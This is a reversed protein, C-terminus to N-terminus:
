GRNAPRQGPAPSGAVRTTAIFLVNRCSRQASAHTAASQMNSRQRLPFEQELASAHTGYDFMKLREPGRTARRM